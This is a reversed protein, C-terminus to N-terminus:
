PRTCFQNKGWLLYVSVLLEDDLFKKLVTAKNKYECFTKHNKAITRLACANPRQSFLGQIRERPMFAHASLVKSLIGDSWFTKSWSNNNAEVGLNEAIKKAAVWTLYLRRGSKM